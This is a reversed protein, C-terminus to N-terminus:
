QAKGESVLKALKLMRDQISLGSREVTDKNIALGVHQDESTLEVMGGRRAFRAIDSVTLIPRGKTAALLDSMAGEQTQPIFVLNCNTVENARSIRVIAIPTQQATRGTLPTLYGDLAEGGFLCVNLTNTGNTPWATYKLFNYVLGAKIKQEYLGTTEGHANTSCFLATAMLLNLLFNKWSRCSKLIAM